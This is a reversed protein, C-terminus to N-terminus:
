HLNPHLQNNKFRSKYTPTYTRVYYMEMQLLTKVKYILVKLTKLM